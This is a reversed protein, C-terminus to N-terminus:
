VTIGLEDLISTLVEIADCGAYVHWSIGPVDIVGPPGALLLRTAGAEFLATVAAGAGSLYVEDSSCLCAITTGARRFAEALEATSGVGTATALGGAQFLNTTFGARATYAAPSGLTALFVAPRAGTHEAHAESRDRLAEFAASPRVRPLKGRPSPRTATRRSPLKEALDPFESVGTIPEVRTALRRERESWATGISDALWGDTLAAALGGRREIGTFVEWARTALAATLSEVYWSGGAPDVVRALHSERILLSQTNRAIRRSFADPLGIATDFPLVTVADAGGVGAGFCGLTGRLMNSWPDRHTLASEASVAHQRQATEAEGVGCERAVRAWLGRAARLKAITTFQDAPAAYRFEIQTFADAVSLGADTLARLYAVGAALSCGLEQAPDAGGGQYACADVTVARLKPHERVCRIALEGALTLGAAVDTDADLGALWGLPDVGLTGAVAAADVNRRAVLTFLADAAAAADRPGADLAIPALDLCVEALVYALGAVPLAGEGLMLWLSTVGGALDALVAEATGAVNPDAHRARVDWGDPNAGLPRSGRIFPALGPVGVPGVADAPTYLPAVDVGECLHTVLLDEVAEPADALDRGSKRLVGAVLERWQARDPTPFEGALVLGYPIGTRPVPAAQGPQDSLQTM